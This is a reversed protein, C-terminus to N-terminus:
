MQRMRLFDSLLVAQGKKLSRHDRRMHLHRGPQEMWTQLDITEEPFIIESKRDTTGKIGLAPSCTSTCDRCSYSDFFLATPHPGVEPSNPEEYNRVAACIFTNSCGSVLKHVSYM